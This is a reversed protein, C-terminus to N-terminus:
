PDQGPDDTGRGAGKAGCKKGAAPSPDVPPKLDDLLIQRIALSQQALMLEKELAAVRAQLADKEPDVPKEPRGPPRNALSQMMGELARREWEYYTKRSVGLQRAAATATMLGSRVKVILEARLRARADQNPKTM